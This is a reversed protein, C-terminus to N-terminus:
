WLWGRPSKKALVADVGLMRGAAGLLLALAIFIAM